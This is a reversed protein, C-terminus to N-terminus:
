PASAALDPLRLAPMHPHTLHQGTNSVHPTFTDPGPREAADYADMVSEVRHWLRVPGSERVRWADNVLTIAAASGTVVDALYIANGTYTM